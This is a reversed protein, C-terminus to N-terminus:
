HSDFRERLRIEEIFGDRGIIVKREPLDLDLPARRDRAKALSAYAGYLPRIVIAMLLACRENPRGDIAEQVDGNTLSGFSRMLGRVFRQR